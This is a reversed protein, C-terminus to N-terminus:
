SECFYSYSFKFVAASVILIVCAFFWEPLGLTESVFAFPLVTLLKCLSGAVELVKGSKASFESTIYIVTPIIWYVFIFVGFSKRGSKGSYFSACIWNLILLVLAIVRLPLMANNTFLGDFGLVSCVATIGACLIMDTIGYNKRVPESIKEDSNELSM